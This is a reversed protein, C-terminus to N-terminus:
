GASLLTIPARVKPNKAWPVEFEVQVFWDISFRQGRATVPAAVQAPFSFEQTFSGAVTGPRAIEIAEGQHAYSDHHGQAQSSETGVLRVKVASCNVPKPTEVVVIGMIPEGLRVQNAALAMEIRVNPAFIADIYGRGADEPYRTRVPVIEEPASPLPLLPFAHTAKLDAALPIDVQVSLEYFVRTKQGVHTPPANDPIAFEVAYLYEGPSMREHKGGGLLTAAADGLNGMFGLKQNGALLFPLNVIDVHEIATHTHTTVHGKGDTTTTTYVAKTEEAGHFRAHIGRVKLPQELSLTIPVRLTEGRTLQEVPPAIRILNPM